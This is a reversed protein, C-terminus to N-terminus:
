KFLAALLCLSYRWRTVAAQHRENTAISVNHSVHKSFLHFCSWDSGDLRICKGKAKLEIAEMRKRLDAVEASLSIGVCMLM